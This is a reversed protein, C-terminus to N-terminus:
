NADAVIKPHPEFLYGGKSGASAGRVYVRVEFMCVCRSRAYTGRVYMRVDLTRVRRTLCTLICKQSYIIGFAHMSQICPQM